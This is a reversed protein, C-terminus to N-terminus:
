AERTATLRELAAAIRNREDLYGQDLSGLQRSLIEIVETTLEEPSRSIHFEITVTGLRLWEDTVMDPEPKTLFTRQIISEPDNWDIKLVRDPKTLWLTRMVHM